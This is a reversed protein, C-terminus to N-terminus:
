RRAPKTDVSASEVPTEPEVFVAMNSTILDKAIDDPLEAVAGVKPWDVGDVTGSIGVMM